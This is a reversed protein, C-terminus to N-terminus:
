KNRNDYDLIEGNIKKYIAKGSFIEQLAILFEHTAMPKLLTEKYIKRHEDKNM